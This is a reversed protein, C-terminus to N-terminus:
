PKVIFKKNQEDFVLKDRNAAFWALIAADDGSAPTFDKLAKRAEDRYDERNTTRLINAAAELADAHGFEAAIGCMNTAWWENYKAKKWAKDVADALEFGPLTRIAAFTSQPNGGRIFYAKLAPYTAPDQLSAV